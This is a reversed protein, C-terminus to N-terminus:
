RHRQVGGEVKAAPVPDGEVSRDLLLRMREADSSTTAFAKAVVVGQQVTMSKKTRNVAKCQLPNGPCWRQVGRVIGSEAGLEMDHPQTAIVLVLQRDHPRPGRVVAEVQVSVFGEVKVEKILRLNWQLSGDDEWVVEGEKPVTSPETLGEPEDVTPPPVM